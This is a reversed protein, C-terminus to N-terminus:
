KVRRLPFLLSEYGVDNERLIGLVFRYDVDVAFVHYLHALSALAGKQFVLISTIFHAFDSCVSM